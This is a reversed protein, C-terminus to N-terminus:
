ARMGQRVRMPARGSPTIAMPRSMGVMSFARSLADVQDDHAVGPFGALEDLFTRNWPARVIYLNGVNCQSAIPGARTAKDGTEPSSEVRWGALKKTYYLVQVKGAQGPDQPLGVRVAKGDQDATNLITREVEDPGGRIRTVDLVVFRGDNLRALKVGVTWDPDRSGVQATASLDWARAINGGAPAADLTVVNGIKFLSGELPAPRQQYLAAWEREGVAKRKRELADVDEWSPWLAEGPKRGLPDCDGEALAPLNIVRWQDAGMEMEELLRGSLDSEHWRTNHSILGNAIFNETRDVQIDFVDERGAATISVIEDPTIKYTTLPTECSKRPKETGSRLTAITACCAESREPKTAIISVYSEAGIPVSTKAPFGDASQASGMKPPSFRTTNMLASGMGTDFTPTGGPSQILQHPAFATLGDPKTTTLHATDWLVPRPTAVTSHAPSAEGSGGIARLVLDGIVLNKLRIWQRVGDREVLFPHRENARITIGSKTKIEFVCDLGHNIWNRVTSVSLRGNDYTAVLDGARIDRLPREAGDAMLVPTDGTMCQIIVIRARPKLRTIVEARYWAWVKERITESDADERGKIPDDIVFLDARRGTISGGAGAARYVGGNTTKWLTRSESALGYDLEGPHEKIMRMVRTSFDEALESGHSAGIVDRNKRRALFWPPFLVSAYTSKASGPPMFVM